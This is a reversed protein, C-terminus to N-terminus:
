NLRYLVDILLHRSTYTACLYLFKLKEEPQESSIAPILSKEKKLSSRPAVCDWMLYFIYWKKGICRGIKVKDKLRPVDLKVNIQSLPSSKYSLDDNNM